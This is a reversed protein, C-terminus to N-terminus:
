GPRHPDDRCVSGRRYSVLLGRDRALDAIAKVPLLLGMTATIHSVQVVRTRPTIVDDIRQLNGEASDHVPDFIKVTIGQQKQRSMWAMAGGPHAHSDFSVEDGPRLDLGSAITANGETANRTFAVESPNVGFFAAVPARAEEIRQHGHESLTQFALMAEQMADLVPYPAPGLGGTNLYAREHTLPYYARVLRWFAEDDQSAAPPWPLAPRAGAVLPMAGLGVAKLFTRRTTM